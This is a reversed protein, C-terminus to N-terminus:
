QDGNGISTTSPLGAYLQLWSFMGIIGAALLGLWQIGVPLVFLPGTPNYRDRAVQVYGLYGTCYASFFLVIAIFNHRAFSMVERSAAQSVDDGIPPTSDMALSGGSQGM